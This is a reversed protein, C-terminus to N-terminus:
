FLSLFFNPHFNGEQPELHYFLYYLPIAVTAYGVFIIGKVPKMLFNDTTSFEKGCDIIILRKTNEALHLEFIYYYSHGDIRKRPYGFKPYETKDAKYSAFAIRKYGLQECEEQTLGSVEMICPELKNLQKLLIKNSDPHNFCNFTIIEDKDTLYASSNDTGTYQVPTSSCGVTFVFTLTILLLRM